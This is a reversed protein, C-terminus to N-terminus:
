GSGHRFTGISRFAWSAEVSLMYIGPADTPSIFNGDADTRLSRTFGRGDTGDLALRDIKIKLYTEALPEGNKFVVRGQLIMQYEMIVEVNESHTGPTIAFTFSGRRTM